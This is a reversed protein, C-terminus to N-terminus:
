PQRRRELDAMVAPPLPNTRLWASAAPADIELWRGVARRYMRERSGEDALRAIQGVAAAPDSGFSHWIFNRVVREDVEAPYRDMLAVAETPNGIAVSSIVGRLADSRPEGAPLRDLAAVAAAQNQRAWVSFVNDMRRDAAEGPHDLLWQVTGAPDNAALREATRLMAGNRLADDQLAAIWAKAADNGQALVYPLMADLAAGRERSRPMAGLLGTARAPDAAAIGRIIGAMFPNAEDGSHNAAAWRIAADPDITAWTTLITDTAFRNATKARAYTLAAFPDAKAWASLLMAYEGLRNETIGLSRFHDLAAEFDGPALQDIFALLARNRDLPDEGRIITELRKMRGAPEAAAARALREARATAAADPMGAAERTASRTAAPGSAGDEMGHQRSSIRGAVFALLGTLVLAM